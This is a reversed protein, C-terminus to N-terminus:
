PETEVVGSYSVASKAIPAKAPASPSVAFWAFNMLRACSHFFRRLVELPKMCGRVAPPPQVAPNLGVLPSLMTSPVAHCYVPMTGNLMRPSASALPPLAGARATRVEPGGARAGGM